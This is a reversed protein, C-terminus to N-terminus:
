DGNTMCRLEFTSISGFGRLGIQLRDAGNIRLNWEERSRGGGFLEDSLYIFNRLFAQPQYFFLYELFASFFGPTPQPRFDSYEGLSNLFSITTEYSRQNEGVKKKRLRLLVDSLISLYIIMYFLQSFALLKARIINIGTHFFFTM